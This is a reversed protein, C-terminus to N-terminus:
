LRILGNRISDRLRLAQTAGKTDRMLVRYLYDAHHSYAESIRLHRPGCVRCKSEIGLKLHEMEMKKTLTVDDSLRGVTPKKLGCTCRKKSGPAGMLTWCFSAQLTEEETLPEDEDLLDGLHILEPERLEITPALSDMKKGKM